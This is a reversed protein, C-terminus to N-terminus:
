WQVEEPLAIEETHKMLWDRFVEARRGSYVAIAEDRDQVFVYVNTPTLRFQLAVIPYVM